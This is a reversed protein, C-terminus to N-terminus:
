LFRGSMTAEIVPYSNKSSSVRNDPSQKGLDSDINHCFLTSNQARIKHM